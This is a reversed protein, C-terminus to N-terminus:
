RQTIVQTISTRDGVTVANQISGLEFSLQLYLTTIVIVQQYFIQNKPNKKECM